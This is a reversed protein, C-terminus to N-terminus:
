SSTRSCSVLRPQREDARRDTRQRGLGDRDPTSPDGEAAVHAGHCGRPLRDVRRRRHVGQGTGPLAPDGRGHGPLDRASRPDGRGAERSNGRRGRLAGHRHHPERLVQLAHDRAPYQASGTATPPRRQHPLGRQLRGHRSELQLGAARSREDGDVDTRPPLAGPGGDGGRRDVGGAAAAGPDPNIFIFGGFTDVPVEILSNDSKDLGGSSEERLLGKLRGDLDYSWLHYQCLFGRKANGTSGQCIANGRHRCANVFGRLKEDKGRM